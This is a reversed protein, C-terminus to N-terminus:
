LYKLFCEGDVINKALNRSKQTPSILAAIVVIGSDAMLKAVEATRRVNEERDEPSFGLGNSLRKRLEDGDLIAFIAM